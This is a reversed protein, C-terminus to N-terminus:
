RNSLVASHKMGEKLSSAFAEGFLAAPKAAPAPVATFAWASSVSAAATHPM